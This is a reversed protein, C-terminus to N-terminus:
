VVARLAAVFQTFTVSPEALLLDGSDDRLGADRLAATGCPLLRDAHAHRGALRHGAPEPVGARDLRAGPVVGPSARVLQSGRYARRHRGARQPGHEAVPRAPGARARLLINQPRRIALHGLLQELESRRGYFQHHEELPLGFVYPNPKQQFPGSDLGTVRLVFEFTRQQRVEGTDRCSVLCRVSITDEATMARVAFRFRREDEPSLRQQTQKFSQDLLEFADSVALEVEVDDADVSGVNTVSFVIGSDEDRHL